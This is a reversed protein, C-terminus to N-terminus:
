DELEKYSPVGAAVVSAVVVALLIGPVVFVMLRGTDGIAAWWALWDM